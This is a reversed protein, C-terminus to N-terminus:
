KLRWIKELRKAWPEPICPAILVGHVGFVHAMRGGGLLIAVHHMTHGLRFGLLDGPLAPAPVALFYGCGEVWPIILERGQARAWDRSGTPVEFRPLLNAAFYIEAMAVQCRMEPRHEWAKAAAEMAVLQEPTIM